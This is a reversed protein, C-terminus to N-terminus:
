DNTINEDNDPMNAFHYAGGGAVGCILVFAAAMAAFRGWRHKATIVETGSVSDEYEATDAPEASLKEQMSKRFDDSCRIKTLFENYENPRM